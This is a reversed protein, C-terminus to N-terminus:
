AKLYLFSVPNVAEVLNKMMVKNSLENKILSNNNDVIKEYLSPKSQILKYNKELDSLDENVPIYNEWPKLYKKEWVTTEPHTSAFFVRKSAVFLLSKTSYTHGTLDIFYKCRKKYDLMTKFSIDNQNFKKTKNYKFENISKCLELYTHRQPKTNGCLFGFSGCDQTEPAHNDNILEEIIGSYIDRINEVVFYHEHLDIIKQYEHSSTKSLNLCVDNIFSAISTLSMKYTTDDQFIINRCTVAGDEFICLEFQLM